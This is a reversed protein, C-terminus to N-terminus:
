YIAFFCSEACEQAERLWFEDRDKKNVLNFLRLVLKRARRSAKIQQQYSATAGTAGWPKSSVPPGYRAVFHVYGFGRSGSRNRKTDMVIEVRINEAANTTLVHGLKREVESAPTFKGFGGIFYKASHYFCPDVIDTSGRHCWLLGNRGVTYRIYPGVTVFKDCRDIYMPIATM